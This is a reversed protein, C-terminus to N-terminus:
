ALDVLPAPAWTPWGTSEVLQGNRFTAVIRFPRDIDTNDYVFASSTMRIAAAVHTWLRQYRARIKDEPVTHGLGHAVREAVRAVAVDEPVLVVHLVVVYGARSADRLLDLKSEHSFVTETAFSRRAATLAAREDDAIRAAEYSRAEADAPWRQAAIVDANVFPFGTVPEIVYRFLTSKGAGNPGVVVHLTPDNTV